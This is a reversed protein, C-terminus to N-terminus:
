LITRIVYMTPGYTIIVIETFSEHEFQKSPLIERM